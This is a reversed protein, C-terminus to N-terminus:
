LGMWRCIGALLLLHLPYFGYFFYKGCKGQGPGRTGNYYFVPILMLLAYFELTSSMIGLTCIGAGFAALRNKRLVYM